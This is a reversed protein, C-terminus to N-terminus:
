FLSAGREALTPSASPSGAGRYEENGRLATVGAGLKTRVSAAGLGTHVM